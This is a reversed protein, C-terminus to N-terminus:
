DKQKNCAKIWQYISLLTGAEDVMQTEPHLMFQGWTTVGEPVVPKGIVVWDNPIKDLYTCVSGKHNMAVLLNVGNAVDAPSVQSCLLQTALEDLTIPPYNETSYRTAYRCEFIKNEDNEVWVAWFLTELAESIAYLGVRIVKCERDKFLDSKFFLCLKNDKLLKDYYAPSFQSYAMIDNDHEVCLYKKGIEIEKPKCPEAIEAYAKHTKETLSRLQERYYVWARVNRAGALTEAKELNM